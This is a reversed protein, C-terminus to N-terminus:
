RLWDARFQGALGMEYFALWLGFAPGLNGAPGRFGQARNKNCIRQEDILSRLVGGHRMLSDSVCDFGGYPKKRGFNNTQKGSGLLAQSGQCGGLVFKNMGQLTRHNDVVKDALFLMLKFAPKRAKFIKLLLSFFLQDRARRAAALADLLHGMGAGDVDLFFLRSQWFLGVLRRWRRRCGRRRSVEFLHQKLHVMVDLLVKFVDTRAKGFLRSLDMLTLSFFAGDM